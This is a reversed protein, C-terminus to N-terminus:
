KKIKVAIEELDSMSLNKVQSEMIGKLPGGYTANKYGKLAQIIEKKSMDKLVKSKNMAVKEWQQGHCGQCIATSVGSATTLMLAGIAILKWIKSM